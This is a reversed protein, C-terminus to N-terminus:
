SVAVFIKLDTLNLCCCLFYNLGFASITPEYAIHDHDEAVCRQAATPRGM